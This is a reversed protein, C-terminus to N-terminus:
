QSNQYGEGGSFFLKQGRRDFGDPDDDCVRLLRASLSGKEM